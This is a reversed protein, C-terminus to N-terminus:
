YKRMNNMLSKIMQKEKKKTPIPALNFINEGNVFIIQNEDVYFQYLVKDDKITLLGNEYWVDINNIDMKHNNSIRNGYEDYYFGDIKDQIASLVLNSRSCIGMWTKEFENTDLGCKRLLSLTYNDRYDREYEEQKRSEFLECAAPNDKYYSKHNDIEQDILAQLENSVIVKIDDRMKREWDTLYRNDM